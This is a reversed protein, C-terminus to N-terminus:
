QATNEAVQLTRRRLFPRATRGSIAKIFIYSTVYSISQMKVTLAGPGSFLHGPELGPLQTTWTVDGTKKIM